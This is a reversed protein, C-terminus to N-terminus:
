RLLRRSAFGSSKSHPHGIIRTRTLDIIEPEISHTAQATRTRDRMAADHEKEFSEIASRFRAANATSAGAELRTLTAAVEDPDTMESLTRTDSASQHVLLIRRAFKLVMLQQGRGVPYRALVEIVGSPRGAGGSM